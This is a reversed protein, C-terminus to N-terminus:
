PVFPIYISYYFAQYTWARTSALPDSPEIVALVSGLSVMLTEGGNVEVDVPLPVWAGETLLWGPNLEEDQDTSKGGMLYITDYVSAAGFDYRPDPMTVFKEWPNEGVADRAPFYALTESLATEGQQGGLLIIKDELAVAQAGARPAPMAHGEKWADAAPDYIWAQATERAGDFGGFLYIQGEFDVLAYDSRAGPLPAGTEWTDRRPDYIELGDSLSGDALRGGPVYIKEGISVGQVDAVPTPKEQRTEWHSSEIDYRYVVASIGDVGEGALTYIDGDYAAAAMGRLPEPLPALQQWREALEPEPTPEPASPPFILNTSLFVGGLVLLGLITIWVWRFQHFISREEPLEKQNKEGGPVNVIGQEMAYLTAETRSAVGTKSFINSIHVKVTNPSISLEQAIERNTLGQAVLTLIERERQSLEQNETM